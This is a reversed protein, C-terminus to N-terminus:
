YEFDYASISKEILNSLCEELTKGVVMQDIQHSCDGSPTGFCARWNTTFKMLVFHGEYFKNAHNEVEIVLEMEKETM